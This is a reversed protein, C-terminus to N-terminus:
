YLKLIFYANKSESQQFFFREIENIQYEFTKIYKDEASNVVGVFIRDFDKSYIFDMRSEASCCKDCTLCLLYIIVPVILLFLLSILGFLLQGDSEHLFSNIFGLAFFPINFIYIVILKIISAPFNEELPSKLYLTYFHEGFKMFKNVILKYKDESLERNKGLYKAIDFLLPNEFDNADFRSKIDICKEENIDNKFVYFLRAPNIKINETSLDFSSDNIIFFCTDFYKRTKQKGYFFHINGNYTIKYWGFMNKININIINHSKDIEM